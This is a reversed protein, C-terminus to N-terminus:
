CCPQAAAAGAAWCTPALLLPAGLLLLPLLPPDTRASAKWLITNKSSSHGVAIPLDGREYFRRFATNPPNERTKFAGARPPSPLARALTGAKKIAEGEGKKLYTAPDPKDIAL